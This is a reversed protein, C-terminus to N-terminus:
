GAYHMSHYMYRILFLPNLLMSGSKKTRGARVCRVIIHACESTQLSDERLM